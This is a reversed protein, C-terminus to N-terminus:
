RCSSRSAPDDPRAPAADRVPVVAAPRRRRHPRGGRGRAPHGPARRAHPDHPLRLVEVLHDRVAHADGPQRRGALGPHALRPGVGTLASDAVSHPQLLLSFVIGAIAESLVYPLFFLIRFVARGASGATSCSRSRSRSRSRSPCRCCSSWCRQERGLRHVGPQQVGDRLEAARHLQHAPTLGNWKYLSYHAAQVIPVLVFVGYLVLAPVLFLAISAWRSVLHRGSRPRATASTM